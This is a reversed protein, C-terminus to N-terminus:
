FQLAEIRHKIDMASQPFNILMFIVFSEYSQGFHYPYLEDDVPSFWELAEAKDNANKISKLM